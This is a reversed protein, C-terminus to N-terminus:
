PTVPINVEAGMQANARYPLGQYFDAYREYDTM